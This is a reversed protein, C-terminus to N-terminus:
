SLLEEVLRAGKDVIRIPRGVSTPNQMAYDIGLIKYVSALFDLGSIQKEVIEAGEKDTKGIVQGGKVGGM